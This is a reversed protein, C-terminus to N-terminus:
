GAGNRTRSELTRAPDESPAASRDEVQETSRFLPTPHLVYLIPAGNASKGRLTVKLDKRGMRALEEILMRKFRIPTINPKGLALTEDSFEVLLAEFEDKQIKDITEMWDRTKKIPSVRERKARPVEDLTIAKVVMELAYM